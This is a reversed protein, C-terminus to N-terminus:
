RTLIEPHVPVIGLLILLKALRVTKVALLQWSLPSNGEERPAKVSSSVRVNVRLWSEPLTGALRHSKPASM